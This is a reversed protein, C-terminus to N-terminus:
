RHLADLPRSIERAEVTNPHFFDLSKGEELGLWGGVEKGTVEPVLM